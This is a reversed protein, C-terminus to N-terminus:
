NFVIDEWWRHAPLAFHAVWDDRDVEGARVQLVVQESCCGCATELRAPMGLASPIGLADWICNGYFVHRTAVARGDGAQPRVLFPTPVASFPNAMLLEGSPQLVVVHGDALRKLAAAVEEAPAGVATAREARAPMAGKQILHDYVALRLTSDFSPPRLSM